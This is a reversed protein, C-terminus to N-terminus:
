MTVNLEHEAALDEALVNLDQQSRFETEIGGVNQCESEKERPVGVDHCDGALRLSTAVPVIVNEELCGPEPRSLHQHGDIAIQESVIEDFTKGGFIKRHKRDSRTHALQALPADNDAISNHRLRGRSYSWVILVALPPRSDATQAWCSTASTSSRNL